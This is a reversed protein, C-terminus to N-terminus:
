QAACNDPWPRSRIRFRARSCASAPLVGKRDRNMLRARSCATDTVASVGAGADHHRGGARVSRQLRGGGGGAQRATRRLRASAHPRLVEKLAKKDFFEGDANAAESLGDSFLVLKDGPQLQITKVEYAAIDMM